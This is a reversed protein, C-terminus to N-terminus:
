EVVVRKLSWESGDGIEGSDLLERLVSNMARDPWTYEIMDQAACVADAVEDFVRVPGNAFDNLVFVTQGKTM